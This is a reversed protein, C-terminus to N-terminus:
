LVHRRPKQSTDGKFGENKMRYEEEKSIISFYRGLAEVVFSLKDDVLAM